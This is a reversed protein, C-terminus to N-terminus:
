FYVMMFQCKGTKPDHWLYYMTETVGDRKMEAVYFDSIKREEANWWKISPPVSFNEHWESPDTKKMKRKEVIRAVAEPTATFTMCFIPDVPPFLEEHARIGKIGSDPVLGTMNRFAKKNWKTDPTDPDYCGAACLLLLAFLFSLHKKM